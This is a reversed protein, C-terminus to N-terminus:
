RPYLDLGGCYFFIATKFNERNRFGGVRRKISMIKSNLGEAVANTIGHTCYSVVNALREKITRAVKKMPKLKTHIVRRYWDRFYATASAEDDHNWLDRLMEKYAWAKGTELKLTFVEDLLAQQKESLNEQSTLWIYKTKALRNDDDLLLKRHEGRRVKDVAKTALQMVHFRDHVIKNEALPITQKAAKVYAASMDMAVAEVSAMQEPSLHSFCAIGSDTDHGDSIAEVTSADLDYLLTLYDHGKAFAKEDIGIRPLPKAELRDQGRRVARQVFYWTEDWSTRLIGMAGTVTQTALLMDIALREFLITFRSSKEAWPVSVNKVGHEPCNVRPVRAVLFTKFQCSDLHRWSREEAHDYCPLQRECEPCMFKTGRPHSVHLRIEESDVDLEVESVSWPSDLGLIVQYLETDYM